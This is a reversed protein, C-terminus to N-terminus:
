RGRALRRIFAAEGDLDGTVDVAVRRGRGVARARGVEVFGVKEVARRSAANEEEVTTVLRRLEPEGALRDAILTWAAPAVSRGRFAPATMSEELCATDGPLALWGGRAARIPTRERFTWCSFAPRAGELVLWLTGGERLRRRAESEDITWVILPLEDETAQVLELGQDLPRRPREARLPLAYWVYEEEYGLVARRALSVSRKATGVAGYRGLARRLRAVSRMARM